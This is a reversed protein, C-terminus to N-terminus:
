ATTSTRPTYGTRRRSSRPRWCATSSGAPRTRRRGCRGWQREFLISCDEDDYFRVDRAGAERVPGPDRLAADGYTLHLPKNGPPGGGHVNRAALEKIALVEYHESPSGHELFLVVGELWADGFPRSVGQKSGGLYANWLYASLDLASQKTPLSYSGGFGGIALSVWPAHVPREAVGHEVADVQVVDVIVARQLLAVVALERPAVVPERTVSDTSQFDLAGPAGGQRRLENPTDVWGDSAADPLEVYVKSEPYWETWGLRSGYFPRKERVSFSCMTDNYFWRVHIRRFLGTGLAADVGATGEGGDM